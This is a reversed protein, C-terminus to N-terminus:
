DTLQTFVVTGEIIEEFGYTTPDAYDFEGIITLTVQASQEFSATDSPNYLYLSDYSANQVVVDERDITAGLIQYQDGIGFFPLDFETTDPYLPIDTSLTVNYLSLDQAPNSVASSITEINDVGFKTYEFLTDTTITESITTAGSYPEAVTTSGFPTLIELGYSGSELYDPYRLRPLTGGGGGGGGDNATTIDITWAEDLNNEGQELSYFRAVYEDLENPLTQIENDFSIDLTVTAMYVIIRFM